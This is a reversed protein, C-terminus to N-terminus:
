STRTCIRIGYRRRIRCIYTHTKLVEHSLFFAAHRVLISKRAEYKADKVAAALTVVVLVPVAVAVGMVIVFVMDMEPPWAVVTVVVVM